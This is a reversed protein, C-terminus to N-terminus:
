YELGPEHHSCRDINTVTQDVDPTTHVGTRGGGSSRSGHHVTVVTRHGHRGGYVYVYVYPLFAALRGEGPDCPPETTDLWVALRSM